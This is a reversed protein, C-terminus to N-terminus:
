DCDGLYIEVQNFIVTSNPFEVTGGTAVPSGGLYIYHELKISQEKLGFKPYGNTEFNFKAITNSGTRYFREEAKQTVCEGGDREWYHGFLDVKHWAKYKKWKGKNNKRYLKQYGGMMRWSATGFTGRSKDRIKLYYDQGGVTEEPDSGKDKDKKDCCEPPENENPIYFPMPLSISVCPDGIPEAWTVTLVVWYGGSEGVIWNLQNLNGTSETHVPM